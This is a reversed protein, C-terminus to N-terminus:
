PVGCDARRGAEELVSRGDTGKLAKQLERFSPEAMRVRTFVTGIDAIYHADSSALLPYNRSQRYTKKVTEFDSRKSVELADLALGEPIFGLQSFIGFGSRDVHAAIVLGNLRHILDAVRESSLTTAGILLRKDLDEVEDHENVVVQYGFAEEDNEGVLRSYIEEQAAEAELDGPFLGVIHAEESTTVEIGPIVTLGSGRAARRTAATNRASNHDCIAIMHLGQELAARVIARPTMDAIETCPSLVTHIHLDLRYTPLEVAFGREGKDETFTGGSTGSRETPDTERADGPERRNKKRAASGWRTSSAQWNM